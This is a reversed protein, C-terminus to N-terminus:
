AGVDLHPLPVPAVVYTTGNNDVKFVFGPEFGDDVPIWFVGPPQRLDNMDCGATAAAACAARFTALFDAVTLESSGIEPGIFQGEFRGLRATVEHVEQLNDWGFDIPAVQYTIWAM